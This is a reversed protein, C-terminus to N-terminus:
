TFRVYINGHWGRLDFISTVLNWVPVGFHLNTRLIHHTSRSHSFSPQHCLQTHFTAHSLVTNSSPSHFLHTHYLYHPFFTHCLDHTHFLNCIVSITHSFHNVCIKQAVHTVFITHSLNDAVFIIHSVHTHSQQRYVITHAVFNNYTFYLTQSVNHTSHATHCFHHTFSPDSKKKSFPQCVNQTFPPTHCFQYSLDHILRLPNLVLFHSVTDFFESGILEYTEKNWFPAGFKAASVPFSFLCSTPFTTHTM